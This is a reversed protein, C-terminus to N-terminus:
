VRVRLWAFFWTCLGCFVSNRIIGESVGALAHAPPELDVQAMGLTFIITICSGYVWVAAWRAWWSKLNNAILFAAGIDLFTPLM